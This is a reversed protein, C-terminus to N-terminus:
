RFLSECYNQSQRKSKPLMDRNTPEPSDSQLNVEELDETVELEELHHAHIMHLRPLSQCFRVQVERNMCKENNSQRLCACIQNTPEFQLEDIAECYNKFSQIRLFDKATRFYILKNLFDARKMALSNMNKSVESKNLHDALAKAAEFSQEVYLSMRELIAFDRSQFCRSKLKALSGETSVQAAVQANSPQVAAYVLAGKHSTYGTYLFLNM